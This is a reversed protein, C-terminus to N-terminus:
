EGASLRFLLLPLLRGAVAQSPVEGIREAGLKLYFGEANPDSQVLLRLFGLRRARQVANSWLRRGVGDGMAPPDVFFHLLEVDARWPALSYFGLLKGRRELVHVSGGAIAEPRVTLVDRCAELFESDYGWHAKSRLALASLTAAEEVRAPRIVSPHDTRRDTGRNSEM